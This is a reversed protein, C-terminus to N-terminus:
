TWVPLDRLASATLHHCRIRDDLWSTTEPRRLSELLQRCTRLRQDRPRLVILHNEVVVPRDIAVITAVARAGEGPRSTRRVAVFPGQVVSGSFRRRRHVDRVTTWRPLEKAVVVPYWPGRHLHRHPVLTGVTVHFLDGLVVPAKTPSVWRHRRRATGVPMKATEGVLLFVDIDVNPAFRGLIKVRAVGLLSDMHHRWAAYRAGSRLVDPLIASIVTGPRAHRAVHELFVAASNVSGSAWGCGAPATTAAFPPNMVIHTARAFAREDALCSGVSIDDLLDAGLAFHGDVTAGRRAAALAVRVVAAAVFEPHIDRGILQRRWRGLTASLNELM